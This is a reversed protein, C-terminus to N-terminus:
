VGDASALFRGLKWALEPRLREFHVGAGREDSWSVTAPLELPEASGPLRFRVRLPATAELRHLVVYAGDISLNEIRCLEPTSEGVAVSAALDVRRRFFRRAEIMDGM